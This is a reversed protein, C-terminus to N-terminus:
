RSPPPIVLRCSALAEVMAPNMEYKDSAPEFDGFDSITLWRRGSNTRVPRSSRYLAVCITPARWGCALVVGVCMYLAYPHLGFELFSLRMAVLLAEERCFVVLAFSTTELKHMASTTLQKNGHALPGTVPSGGGHFTCPMEADAYVFLRNGELLSPRREM